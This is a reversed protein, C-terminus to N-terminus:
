FNDFHLFVQIDKISRPTRWQEIAEVKDIEM